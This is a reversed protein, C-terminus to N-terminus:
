HSRPRRHGAVAVMAGVGLAFAGIEGGILLPSDIGLLPRNGLHTFSAPV